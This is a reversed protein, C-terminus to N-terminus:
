KYIQLIKNIGWFILKTNISRVRFIQNIVCAFVFVFLSWSSLLLCLTFSYHIPQIILKSEMSLASVLSLHLQSQPPSSSSILQFRAPSRVLIPSSVLQFSGSVLQFRAPISTLNVLQSCVPFSRFDLKFWVSVSSLDFQFQFPFFSFFFNFILQFCNPITISNLWLWVPVLKLSFFSSSDQQFRAPIYNFHSWFQFWFEGLYSNEM